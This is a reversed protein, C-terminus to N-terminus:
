EIIMAVRRVCENRILEYLLVVEDSLICDSFLDSDIFKSLNQEYEVLSKAKYHRLQEEWHKEFQEMKMSIVM